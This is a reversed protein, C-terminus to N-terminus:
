RTRVTLVPAAQSLVAGAVEGWEELAAKIAAKDPTRVISEEVLSLPLAWEDTIVVKSRGPSVSLSFEPDVFKALGLAEMISLVTDRKAEEHREFREMRVKLDAIRQKAAAASAKDDLSSRVLRRIIDDVGVGEETLAALTDDDNEFIQGHETGLTELTERALSMVRQVQWASPAPREIAKM